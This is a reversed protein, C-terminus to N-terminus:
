WEYVLGLNAGRVLYFPTEGYDLRLNATLPGHIRQSLGVNFGSARYDVLARGAGVLEYSVNGFDYGVGATTRGWVVYSLGVGGSSSRTDGPQGWDVRGQASYIWHATYRVLSLGVGDSRNEGKSQIRTYGLTTVVGAIPHAVAADVRYRHAIFDGTGSSAGLTVSTKGFWHAYSLGGDLSRDGFRASRGAEARWAWRDERGIGFRAVQGDADGYGETYRGWSGGIEVSRKLPPLDAASGAAPALALLLAAALGAAPWPRPLARRPSM